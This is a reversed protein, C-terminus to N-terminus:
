FDYTVSLRVYRPQQAVMTQGYRPNAVNPASEGRVYVNTASKGDFLNFVNASFALKGDGFGPKWTVGLDFQRLWPLRGHSGPPSPQGDCYHYIGGYGAPDTRNEGYYGLCVKPAGSILALSGSVQWEPAIQYYGFAKLQHKHDNNTVGNTNEMIEAYDWDQTTSSFTQRIDSRLQGESNGYSRSFVYSAMGYWHGDFPHELTFEAGYYKRKLQGFDMEESTMPVDVYNGDIDRLVFTNTKGPNFLYCSNSSDIEYGMSEAKGIVRDVDCYDDIASRLVRRTLKVGYVWANDLMSRTFGLIYEDQYEPDIGKATVTKPDPLQGYYNNPSVTGLAELDTPLGNGDIGAYTYYEFIQTVAGASNISPNLPLGLYYRGANGYVKFSSDGNVDWSFGLRPALQPSTQRIYAQGASNYNTFQDNRLGLSLLLRESVQWKDEIYQARQTSRVTNLSSYIGKSVYYGDAGNAHGATPDVGDTVPTFPDSLGYEWSYGPGSDSDGIKIAKANQNDIGVTIQHNGLTYGLDVRFNNTRNGQDPDSVSGVTQRGAGTYGSAALLDPNADELGWIYPLPNDAGYAKAYNRTHMRGYLVSLSLNDGFYGTYKASFLKGGQETDDANTLYDDRRMTSYDYDYATGSTKYKSSVGTLELLHSDTIRWDIKGYMRPSKETYRLYPYDTTAYAVDGVQVGEAQEQEAAFFVFLTDKIVPGGFYASATRSWSSNRSDPRFLNGAVPAAPLGNTYLVDDADSKLSGPEWIVQGGFHWDNSGRRGVANIVGGDSRGYQASYGGTYIEQQEIAGYPLTLGGLGKLPDTTNFGNIYYANEAASSGGFSVLSNGTASRFGGSNGIVGPALLAIAESSRGLPLNRLQERTIVTRSDVSTIDIPVVRAGSVQVSELTQVGGEGGFSVEISSGVRLQVGERSEVQQGDKLLTVRYTGLPLQPSQYRGNADVGVERRLGSDSEFVISGHEVGATQGYISGTTSQAWAGLPLAALLASALATSRLSPRRVHRMM